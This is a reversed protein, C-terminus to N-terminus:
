FEYIPHDSPPRPHERASGLLKSAQKNTMPTDIVEAMEHRMVWLYEGNEHKDKSYLPSLFTVTLSADMLGAEYSTFRDKFLKEVLYYERDVKSRCVMLVPVLMDRYQSLYYSDDKTHEENIRIHM